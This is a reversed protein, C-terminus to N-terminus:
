ILIVSESFLYNKTSLYINKQSTLVAVQQVYGLQVAIPSLENEIDEDPWNDEM